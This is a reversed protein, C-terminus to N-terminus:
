IMIGGAEKIVDQMKESKVSDRLLSLYVTAVVFGDDDDSADDAVADKLTVRSAPLSAARIRCQVSPRISLSASLLVSISAGFSPKSERQKKDDRPSM